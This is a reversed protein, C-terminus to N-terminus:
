NSFAVHTKSYLLTEDNNDSSAVANNLCLLEAKQLKFESTSHTEYSESYFHESKKQNSFKSQAKDELLLMQSLLISAYDAM